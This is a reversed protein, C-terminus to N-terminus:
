CEIGDTQRKRESMCVINTQLMEKPRIEQKDTVKSQHTTTKKLSIREDDM